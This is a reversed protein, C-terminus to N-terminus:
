EYKRRFLIKVTLTETDALYIPYYNGDRDKWEVYINMNYMPQTSFLDYWRRPGQLYYQFATRNNIDQIPEFDTIVQQTLNQRAQELEPVVPISSSKFVISQLDNWNTATVWEGYTSYYNLFNINTKNNGNNKVIVRHAKPELEESEFNQFSNFLSFLRINFFIEITPAGAVVPDYLQEANFIFLNTEAEYTIFPAETPPAGSHVTKLATFADSFAKNVMDLMEQYNWVSKGYFDPEQSNPIWVVDQTFDNGGYSLTVKWLGDRFIMIPIEIAPVYFREVAMEYKSPDDLIPQVRTENFVAKNTESGSIRVNYYVNENSSM